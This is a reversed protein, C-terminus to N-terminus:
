FFLIVLDLGVVQLFRFTVGSDVGGAEFIKEKQGFQVTGDSVASEFVRGFDLLLTNGVGEQTVVQKALGFGTHTFGRDEADRDKVTQLLIRVGHTRQDQAVGALQGMLDLLFEFTEALVSEIHLRLGDITTNRDFLVLLHELLVWRM